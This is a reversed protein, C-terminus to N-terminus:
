GLHQGAGHSPITKAAGNKAPSTVGVTIAHKASRILRQTRQRDGIAIYRTPM